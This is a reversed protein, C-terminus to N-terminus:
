AARPVHLIDDSRLQLALFADPADPFLPMPPEPVLTMIPALSSPTTVCCACAVCGVPRAQEQEDCDREGHCVSIVPGVIPGILFAFLLVRVFRNMPM